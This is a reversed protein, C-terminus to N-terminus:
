HFIYQYQSPFEANFKIDLLLIIVILERKDSENGRGREREKERERQVVTVYKHKQQALSNFERKLWKQDTKSWIMM